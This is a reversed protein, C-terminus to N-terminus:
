KESQNNKIINVADLLDTNNDVLISKISTQNAAQIDSIKDGILWSNSVDIDYEDIAEILMGPKPKRCSCNEDPKHPCIYIKAITCSNKELECLMFNHIKDLHIKTIIGRNIASQNTIIFVVYGMQNLQNIATFTKPLFVFEEVSKVYDDRNYNIVGDRDLFIARIKESM